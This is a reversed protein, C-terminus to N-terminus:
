RREGGDNAALARLAFARAATGYMVARVNASVSEPPDLRTLEILAARLRDRETALDDIMQLRLEAVQRLAGLEDNLM